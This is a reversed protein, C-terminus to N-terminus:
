LRPRPTAPAALDTCFHFFKYSAEDLDTRRWDRQVGVTEKEIADTKITKVRPAPLMRLEIHRTEVRGGMQCIAHKLKEGADEYVKIELDRPPM